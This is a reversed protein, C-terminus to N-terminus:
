RTEYTGDTYYEGGIEYRTGNVTVQRTGHPIIIKQLSNIDPTTGSSRIGGRSGGIVLQDGSFNNIIWQIGTGHHQYNPM